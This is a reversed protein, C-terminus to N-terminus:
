DSSVPEGGFEREFDPGEKKKENEDRLTVRQSFFFGKPRSRWQVVSELIRSKWSTESSLVVFPLPKILSRAHSPPISHAEDKEKRQFEGQGLWCEM